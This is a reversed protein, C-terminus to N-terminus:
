SVVAEDELPEGELHAAVDCDAKLANCGVQGLGM